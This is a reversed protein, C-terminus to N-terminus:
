KFVLYASGGAIEATHKDKLAVNGSYFLIPKETQVVTTGTVSVLRFGGQKMVDNLSAKENKKVNVWAGDSVKGDLLGQEVTSVSFQEVQNKDDQSQRAFRCLDEGTQYQYVVTATGNELSCDALTVAQGGAAMGSEAGQSGGAAGSGGAQRGANYAEAEEQAAAKLEEVKYDTNAADYSEVLSSYIGGDESVYVTSQKSPFSGSDAKCGYLLLGAFAAVATVAAIRTIKM